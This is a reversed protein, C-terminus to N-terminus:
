PPYCHTAGIRAGIRSAPPVERTPPPNILPSPHGPDALTTVWAGRGHTFAFLKRPVTSSIGLWKVSVNAFATNEKYWSAGGDLSRLLGTHTAAYARQTNRSSVIISGVFLVNISTTSALQTGTVGADM